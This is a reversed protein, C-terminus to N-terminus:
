LHRLSQLESTHEESRHKALAAGARNFVAAAERCTKEDFPDKHPIWACGAYQLGLTKAERAVDELHDRLQEFPFHGSVPKLGKALDSSRRTPFPHLTCS